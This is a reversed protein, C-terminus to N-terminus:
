EKNLIEDVKEWVRIMTEHESNLKEHKVFLILADLLEDCPEVKYMRFLEEIADRM